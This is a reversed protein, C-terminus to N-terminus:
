KEVGEIKAGCFPCYKYLPNGFLMPMKRTGSKCESCLVGNRATIIWKGTKREPAGSGAQKARQNIMNIISDFVNKTCRQCQTDFGISLLCDAQYMKVDARLLDWPNIQKEEKNAM